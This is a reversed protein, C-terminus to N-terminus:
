MLRKMAKFSEDDNTKIWHDITPPNPDLVEPFFDQKDAISVLHPSLAVWMDLERLRTTGRTEVELSRGLLISPLWRHEGRETRRPM